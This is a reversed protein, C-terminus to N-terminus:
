FVDEIPYVYVLYLYFFGLSLGLIVVGLVPSTIKVGKISLEIDTATSPSDSQKGRMDTKFQVAAFYIGIGVLLLVVAFIVKSTALQWQFVAQRHQLGIERYDYYARLSDRYAALTEEDLVIPNPAAPAKPDFDIKKGTSKASSTDREELLQSVISNLKDAAINKDESQAYLPEVWFVVGLILGSIFLFFKHESKECFYM